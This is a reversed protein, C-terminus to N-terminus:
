FTAQGTFVVGGATATVGLAAPHSSRAHYVYHAIGGLIAAAGAIMAAGGLWQKTVASAAEARRALFSEHDPADSLRSAATRGSQWVLTGLVGAVVGGGVLADGAVDRYWPGAAGSAPRATDREECREINLRAYQAFPEDPDGALFARYTAIASACDGLVRQTQAMSYLVEPRPAVSLARRFEELAEAYAKRAFLRKGAEYHDVPDLSTSARPAAHAHVAAAIIVAVIIRNM